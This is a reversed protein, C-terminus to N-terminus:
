GAAEKISADRAKSSLVGEMIRRSEDEMEAILEDSRGSTYKYAIYAPIAVFLGFATTYLAESIGGALDPPNVIPQESIVRFIKIMGAITGLLGLLTSVNSIAGLGEIYRELETAERRGTEEMRERLEMRSKESSDIAVATIRAISSDNSGSLVRAQGLKGQALLEYLNNLFSEPIVKKRRLLWMKQFFISVAVISCLIIPYVFVGGKEILETITGIWDM